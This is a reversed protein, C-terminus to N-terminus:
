RLVNRTPPPPPIGCIQYGPLLTRLTNQSYHLLSVRSLFVCYLFVPNERCLHLASNKKKVQTLLNWIGAASNCEVMSYVTAPWLTPWKRGSKGRLGLLCVIRYNKRSNRTPGIDTIKGLDLGFYMGKLCSQPLKSADCPQGKHRNLSTM